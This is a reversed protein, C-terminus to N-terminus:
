EIYVITTFKFISGVLYKIFLRLSSQLPFSQSLMSLAVINNQKDTVNVALTIVNLVVKYSIKQYVTIEFSIINSTFNHMNLCFMEVTRPLLASVFTYVNKKTFVAVFSNYSTTTIYCVCM